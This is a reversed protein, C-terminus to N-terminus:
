AAGPLHPLAELVASAPRGVLVTSVLSECPRCAPAIILVPEGAISYTASTITGHQVTGTSPEYDVETGVLDAIHWCTM